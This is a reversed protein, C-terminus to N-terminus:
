LENDNNKHSVYQNSKMIYSDWEKQMRKSEEMGARLAEGLQKFHDSLNM